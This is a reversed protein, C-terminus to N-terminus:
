RRMKIMTIMPFLGWWGRLADEGAIKRGRRRAMWLVDDDDGDDDDDDGDDNDNILGIQGARGIQACGPVLPSCM